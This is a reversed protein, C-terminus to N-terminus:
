NDQFFGFGALEALIDHVDRLANEQSVDLTESVVLAMYEASNNGDCMDFIASATANLTMTTGDDANIYVYQMQEELEECVLNALQKPLAPVVIEYGESM